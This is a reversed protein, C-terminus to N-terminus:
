WEDEEVKSDNPGDGSKRKSVVIAARVICTTKYGMLICEKKLAEAEKQTRFNGCTTQWRPTNFHTYIELEPHLEKLRKARREAEERDAKKNGGNYVQVRWGRVRQVGQMIKPGAMYVEETRRRLREAPTKAKVAPQRNVTTAPRRVGGGTSSTAPTSSVSGDANVTVVEGDLSTLTNGESSSSTAQTNNVQAGQKNNVVDSIASSQTVTVAGNNQQTNATQAGVTLSACVAM